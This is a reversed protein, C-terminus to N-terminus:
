YAGSVEAALESENKARLPQKERLTGSLPQKLVIVLTQWRGHDAM